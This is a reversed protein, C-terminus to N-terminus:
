VQTIKNEVSAAGGKVFGSFHPIIYYVSFFIATTKQPLLM